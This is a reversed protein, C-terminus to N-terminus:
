IKGGRLGMEALWNQKYEGCACVWGQPTAILERQNMCVTHNGPCTYPHLDGRKQRENLKAVQEDSWIVDTMICSVM